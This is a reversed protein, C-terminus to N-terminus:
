VVSKRDAYRLDDGQGPDTNLCLWWEDIIGRENGDRQSRVKM